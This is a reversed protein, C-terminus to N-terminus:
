LIGPIFRATRKMYDRYADGFTEIMMQEERPIRVALLAILVIPACIGVMWNPLLMAQAVTWVLFATYM